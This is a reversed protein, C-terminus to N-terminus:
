LPRLRSVAHYAAMSGSHGASRRANSAQSAGALKSSWPRWRVRRASRVLGRSVRRPQRSARAPKSQLRGGNARGGGRGAGGPRSGGARCCRRPNPRAVRRSQRSRIPGSVADDAGGDVGGGIGQNVRDFIGLDRAIPHAVHGLPDVGAFQAAQRAITEPRARPRDGAGSDAGATHVRCEDRRAFASALPPGLWGVVRQFPRGM